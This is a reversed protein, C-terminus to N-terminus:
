YLNLTLGEREPPLFAQEFESLGPVACVWESTIPIEQRKQREEWAMLRMEHDIVQKQYPVGIGTKFQFEPKLPKTCNFELRRVIHEPLCRLFTYEGGEKVATENSLVLGEELVISNGSFQFYIPLMRKLEGINHVEHPVEKFKGHRPKIKIM